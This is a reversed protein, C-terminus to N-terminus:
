TNEMVSTYDALATLAARVEDSTALQDFRKCTLAIDVGGDEDLHPGDANSSCEKTLPDICHLVAAKLVPRQKLVASMQEKISIADHLLGRAIELSQVNEVGGSQQAKAGNKAICGRCVTFLREHGM